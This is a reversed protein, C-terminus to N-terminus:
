TNFTYTYRQGHRQCGVFCIARHSTALLEFRRPWVLPLLPWGYTAHRITAHSEAAYSEDAHLRIAAVAPPMLGYLTAPRHTIDYYPPMKPKRRLVRLPTHYHRHSAM